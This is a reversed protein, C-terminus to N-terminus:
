SLSRQSLNTAYPLNPRFLLWGCCNACRDFHVILRRLVWLLHLAYRGAAAIITVLPDSLCDVACEISFSVPFVLLQSENIQKFDWWRESPSDGRRVISRVTYEFREIFLSSKRKSCYGKAVVAWETPTTHSSSLSDGLLVVRECRVPWM